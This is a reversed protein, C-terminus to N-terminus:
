NNQKVFVNQTTARKIPQLKLGKIKDNPKTKGSLGPRDNIDLRNPKHEPSGHIFWKEADGKTM